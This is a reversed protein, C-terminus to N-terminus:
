WRRFPSFGNFGPVGCNLPPVFFGTRFPLSMAWFAAGYETQNWFAQTDTQPQAYELGVSVSGEAANNIRGVIQRPPQGNLSAFLATFHATAANLMITRQFLNQIPSTPTNDCLMTARNFYNQAQQPQVSSFEPYQVLWGAYNFVVVGSPSQSSM